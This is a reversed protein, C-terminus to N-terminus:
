VVYKQTKEHEFVRTGGHVGACGSCADAGLVGLVRRIAGDCRVVSNLLWPVLVEESIEELDLLVPSYYRHRSLKTRKKFYKNLLQIWNRLLVIMLSDIVVAERPRAALDLQRM